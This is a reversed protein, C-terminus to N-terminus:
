EESFLNYSNEIFLTRDNINIKGAGQGRGEGRCTGKRRRCPCPMGRVTGERPVCIYVLTGPLVLTGVATPVSVAGVGAGTRLAKM